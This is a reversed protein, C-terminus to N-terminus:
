GRPDQDEASVVNYETAAIPIQRGGAYNDFANQLTSKLSAWHGQPQALIQAWGGPNNPPLNDFAYPHVIYLDMVSGANQIVKVGWNSFDGPDETGVVGVQITPDVAKVAARVALYGDHGPKGNIYEAGDCTWSLEWGYSVCESGGAAPTGGYDENGFEWTSIGLPAANGNAARCNPGIPRLKGILATAKGSTRVTRPKPTLSRLSRLLNKHPRTVNLTYVVHDGTVGLAHIFNIFDTPNAAWSEWGDGCPWANPQNARLECSLWGYNDSWSGGPIRLMQLHAARARALLTANRLYGGLWAPVNTGVFAPNINTAAGNNNIHITASVDPTKQNAPIQHSSPLASDWSSCSRLM